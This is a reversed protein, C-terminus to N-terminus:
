MYLLFFFLLVALIFNFARNDYWVIQGEGPTMGTCIDSLVNHFSRYRMPKKAPNPDDEDGSSSHEDSPGVYVLKTCKAALLLLRDSVQLESNNTNKQKKIAIDELAELCFQYILKLIESWKRSDHAYFASNQLSTDFPCHIQVQVM